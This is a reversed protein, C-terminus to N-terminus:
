RRDTSATGFRGVEAYNYNRVHTQLDGMHGGMEEGFVALIAEKAKADIDITKATMHSALDLVCIETFPDLLDIDNAIAIIETPRRAYYIRVSAVLDLEGAYGAIVGDRLLARPAVEHPDDIPVLNVTTGAAYTSTGVAEVKVDTIRLPRTALDATDCSGAVLAIAEDKGIYDRNWDAMQAYVQALKANLRRIYTPSTNPVRLSYEVCRSLAAEIAEKATV